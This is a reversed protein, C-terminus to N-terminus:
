NPKWHISQLIKLAIKRQKNNPVIALAELKDGDKGHSLLLEAFPQGATTYGTYETAFLGNLIFKRHSQVRFMPNKVCATQLHRAVVMTVFPKQNATPVGYYLLFEQLTEGSKKFSSISKPVTFTYTGATVPKIDPVNSISQDGTNEPLL